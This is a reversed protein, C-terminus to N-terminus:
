KPMRTFHSACPHSTRGITRLRSRRRHNVIGRPFCVRRAVGPHRENRSEGDGDYEAGHHRRPVHTSGHASRRSHVSKTLAPFPPSSCRFESFIASSAPQCLVILMNFFSAICFGVITGYGNIQPLGPFHAPEGAPRCFDSPRSAFSLARLVQPRRLVVAYLLVQGTTLM